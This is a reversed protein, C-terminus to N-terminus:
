FLDAKQILADFFHEDVLWDPWDAARAYLAAVLSTKRDLALHMLSEDSLGGLPSALFQAVARDDDPLLMADCLALLDSVATQATLVMRDLGAVAIGAGKLAATIAGVLADRRRVLILFDGPRALRNRSPLAQTLRAAIFEALQRA